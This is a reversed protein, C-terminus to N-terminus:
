EGTLARKPNDVLICELEEKSLGARELAAAFEVAVFSYGGGGSIDLHSRKCVDQSLLIQDLNGSRVLAMVLNVRLQLDYETACRINDFQVFSGRKAIDQHYEPINVTDCHGIIVRRPDVGEAALLDLQEVGVPWKAAHTSITAGTALHARAAARFAREEAASVYWKDAGIEGILGARVDTGAFGDTLEISMQEALRDVGVRDMWLQDLFPDRYHGTGLIINLGSDQALKKLSLVNNVSRSGNEAYGTAPVGGYRGTPDPAAGSTIEAVTLDVVTRGGALVFKGIEQQMLGYDNLLGAPRSEILMNIFIHEHMLTVGLAAGDVPGSASMVSGM